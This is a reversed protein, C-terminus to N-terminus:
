LLPTWRGSPHPEPAKNFTQATPSTLSFRSSGCLAEGAGSARVGNSFGSSILRRMGLVSHQTEGGRIGFRDHARNTCRASDGPAAADELELAANVSPKIVDLHADTLRRHNGAAEAGASGSGPPAARSGRDERDVVVDIRQGRRGSHVSFLDGRDDGLREQAVCREDRGSGAGRRPAPVRACCAAGIM